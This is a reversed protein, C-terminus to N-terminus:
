QLLPFAVYLGNCINLLSHHDYLFLYIQGLRYRGRSAPKSLANFASAAWGRSRALAPTTRRRGTRISRKPLIIRV